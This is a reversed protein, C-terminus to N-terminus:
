GCVQLRVGVQWWRMRPEVVGVLAEVGEALETDLKLQDISGGATGLGVCLSCHAGELPLLSGNAGCLGCHCLAFLDPASRAHLVWCHLGAAPLCHLLLLLQLLLLM